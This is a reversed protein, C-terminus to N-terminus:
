MILGAVRGAMLQTTLFMQILIREPVPVGAQAEGAELVLVVLAM